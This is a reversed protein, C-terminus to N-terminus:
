KIEILANVKTNPIELSYLNPAALKKLQYHEELEKHNVVIDQQLENFSKQSITVHLPVIEKDHKALSAGKDIMKKVVAQYKM